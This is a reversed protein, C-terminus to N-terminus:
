CAYTEDGIKYTKAEFVREHREVFGEGVQSHACFTM